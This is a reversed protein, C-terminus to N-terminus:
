PQVTNIDLLPDLMKNCTLYHDKIIAQALELAKAYKEPNDMRDRIYEALQIKYACYNEYNSTWVSPYLFENPYMEAYSCRDPLVPIVGALVAEMISIGLNEHLACSFIIKSSALERYYDEKSLGMKATIVVDFNTKLNEAIDPQKDANYRHPWIVKDQKPTDVLAELQPIIYEHPQGSRQAKYTDEIGLNKLFMDRHFNTAYWNYDCAHYWAREQHPPWDKRMKMGLIDTPDYHGAHWIGHIEVPIELLDSMYRIATIAFNWADTVLFKDGPKVRGHMFLESIAQVQAAKYYNTAAFDLFAGATTGNTAGEGAITVVEWPDLKLESIRDGIIKPINEYWQKTYRSDIPEIPVLFITKM